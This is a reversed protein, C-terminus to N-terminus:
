RPEEEMELYGMKAIRARSRRDPVVATPNPLPFTCVEHYTPLEYGGSGRYGRVNSEITAFYRVFVDLWHAVDQKNRLKVTLVSDDAYEEPLCSALPPAPHKQRLSGNPCGDPNYLGMDLYDLSPCKQLSKAVSRWSGDTLFVFDFEIHRLTRTHRKIFGRLRSGSVYTCRLKLHTLHSYMKKAFLNVWIDECGHCLRLRPVADCGHLTIERVSLLKNALTSLSSTVSKYGSYHRGNENDTVDSKRLDPETVHLSLHPTVDFEEHSILDPSETLPNLFRDQSTQRFDQPDVVVHVIPRSFSTCKLAKFVTPYTAKERLYIELLSTSNALNKFSETLINVADPSDAFADLEEDRLSHAYTAHHYKTGGWSHDMGWPRVFVIKRLRDRFYPTRSISLLVGLSKYILRVWLSDLMEGYVIGADFLTKQYIAKCCLRLSKLDQPLADDFHRDRLIIFRCIRSLIEAPLASLAM